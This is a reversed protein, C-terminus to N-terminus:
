PCPRLPKGALAPKLTDLRQKLATDALPLRLWQGRVEAREQVVRATRVGRSALEALADRAAAETPYSGLSLGPALAPNLLPEFRINLGRARLEALKKNMAESDTYKGMYVIWRNPEMGSELAWSGAPLAPTLAQRLVDSQREDFLGAQLCETPRPPPPNIQAARAEPRRQDEAGLIRMREPHIQQALRQPETQQAPAWGYTKLLGQSWALYLGNAVLLILIMLRLM